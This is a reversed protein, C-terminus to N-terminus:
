MIHLSLTDWSKLGSYEYVDEVLLRIAAVGHPCRMSCNSMPGIDRKSDLSPAVGTVASLTTVTIVFVGTCLTLFVNM